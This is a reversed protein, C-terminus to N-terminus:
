EVTGALEAINDVLYDYLARKVADYTTEGEEPTDAVIATYDAGQILIHNLKERAAGSVWEGDDVDGFDVVVRIDENEPSVTFQIIQARPYTKGPDFAGPDFPTTLLIPM